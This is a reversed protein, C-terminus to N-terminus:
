CGADVRTFRSTAHVHRAQRAADLAAAPAAAFVVVCGRLEGRVHGPTQLQEGHEQFSAFVSSFGV